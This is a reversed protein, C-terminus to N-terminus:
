SSFWLNAPDLDSEKLDSQEGATAACPMHRSFFLGTPKEKEDVPMIDSIILHDRGLFEWPVPILYDPVM